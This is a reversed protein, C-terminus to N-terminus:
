KLNNAIETAWKKIGLDNNAYKDIIVQLEPKFHSVSGYENYVKNSLLNLTEMFKKFCNKLEDNSIKLIIESSEYKLEEIQGETGSFSSHRVMESVENIKVPNFRNNSSIGSQLNQFYMYELFTCAEVFFKKWMELKQQNHCLYFEMMYRLSKSCLIYELSQHYQGSIGSYSGKMLEEAIWKIRDDHKIGLYNYFINSWNSDLRTQNRHQDLATKQEQDRATALINLHVYLKKENLVEEIQMNMTVVRSAIEDNNSFYEKKHKSANPSVIILWLNPNSSFSEIINNKIDDDRFSYGIIVCVDSSNLEEKFKQSLWSYIASQKDKDLKPYIMMESVTEDTLYRMDAIKLGKIPIKIYKGSQSKFWYLSGHLKYLNVGEKNEIFNKPNWNPDFGDICALNNKECFIEITGDYNLSFINLSDNDSKLGKFPVLYDVSQIKECKIRIYNEILHKFEKLSSFELEHEGSEDSTRFLNKLEPYKNEFLSKLKQDELQVLFSMILELDSRGYYNRVIDSLAHFKQSYMTSDMILAKAFFGDYRDEKMIQLPNELFDKTMEDITPIGAPRSAGAGLM